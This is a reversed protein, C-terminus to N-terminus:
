KQLHEQWELLRKVQAKNPHASPRAKRIADLAEQASLGESILYAAAMTPGRGEGQRCHVYSAGGAQKQKYMFDVGKQLDEITPPTWDPTKLNLIKFGSPAPKPTSMRMNVIGTIGWKKFNKYASKKYQGGVYLSPVLQSTTYDPSGSLLNRTREKLRIAWLAGLTIFHKVGSQRSSNTLPVIINTSTEFGTIKFPLSLDINSDDFLNKPAATLLVVEHGSYMAFIGAFSRGFFRRGLVWAILRFSSLRRLVAVHIIGSRHKRNFLDLGFIHQIPRNAITLSYGNVVKHKGDVIFEFDQKDASPVKKLGSVAYALVGIKSKISRPADNIADAWWGSHMDFAFLGNDTKALDYRQLQYLNDIYLKLIGIIDDPLNFHNALVNATGGPLILLRISSGALAKLAAIISGDGGYVAVDKFLSGHKEIIRSVDTPKNAAKYLYSVKHKKLVDEIIPRVDQQGGSTKSVIVLLKKNDM